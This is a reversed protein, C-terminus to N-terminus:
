VPPWRERLDGVLAAAAAEALPLQRPVHNTALEPWLHLLSALLESRTRFPQLGFATFLDSRALRKVPLGFTAAATELLTLLEETSSDAASPAYAYIAKPTTQELLRHFYAPLLAAHDKRRGLYRSDHFAFSEAALGCAAILRGGLRFALIM